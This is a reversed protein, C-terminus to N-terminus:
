YKFTQVNAAIYVFIVQINKKMEETAFDTGASRYSESKVVFFVAVALSSRVYRIHICICM